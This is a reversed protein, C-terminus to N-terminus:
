LSERSIPRTRLAPARTRAGSGAQSATREHPRPAAAGPVARRDSHSRTRCSCCGFVWSTGIGEIIAVEGTIRAIPRDLALLAFFLAWLVAWAFWYFGLYVSADNGDANNLTYIGAPIATIAVFLCYWGFARGRRHHVPQVRGVPLHVRVAPHLRGRPDLRPRQMANGPDLTVAAVVVGVFGTFINIVAVERGQMFCPPASPAPPAPRRRRGRGCRPSARGRWRGAAVARGGGAGPRGALHRQDGLVAGVYLLVVGLLM